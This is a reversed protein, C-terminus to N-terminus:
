VHMWHVCFDYGNRFQEFTGYGSVQETVKIHIGNRQWQPPQTQMQLHSCSRCSLSQCPEAKCAQAKHQWLHYSGWNGIQITTAHCVIHARKRILTSSRYSQLGDDNSAAERALLQLIKEFDNNIEGFWGACVSIVQGRLFRNQSQEFPGVIDGTGGGVVDAAFMRDLQNHSIELEANLLNSQWRM